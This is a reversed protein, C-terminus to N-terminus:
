RVPLPYPGPWLSRRLPFWSAGKDKKAHINKHVADFHVSDDNKGPIETELTKQYEIDGLARITLSVFADRVSRVEKAPKVIPNASYYEPQHFSRQLTTKEILFDDVFLQRRSDIKVPMDSVNDPFMLNDSTLISYGKPFVARDIYPNASKSEQGFCLLFNGFVLSLLICVAAKSFFCKKKM